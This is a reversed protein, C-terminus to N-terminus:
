EPVVKEIKKKISSAKHQLLKRQGTINIFYRFCKEENETTSKEPLSNTKKGAKDRSKQEM